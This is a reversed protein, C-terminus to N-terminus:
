QKGTVYKNEIIRNVFYKHVMGDEKMWQKLLRDIWDVYMRPTFGTGGFYGQFYFRNIIDNFEHKRKNTIYVTEIDITANIGTMCLAINMYLEDPQGGGWRSRLKNLPIPNSLFLEKALKFLSECESSKKIYQLSSNIAPLIADENLKYHEWITDAYCWIMEKFDKGEKITHEGIVITQYNKGTGSLHKLLPEIDKLAVADVDLFLNEEYPLLEYILIKAKAPDIRKNTITNETPLNVFIDVVNALDPCYYLAGKDKQETIVCVDINKNFRKISYALNYTAFYYQPKGFALLVVGKSITRQSQNTTSVEM